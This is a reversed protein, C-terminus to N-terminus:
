LPRCRGAVPWCGAVIIGLSAAYFSAANDDDHCIYGKNGVDALDFVYIEADVSEASILLEEPQAGTTYRYFFDGAPPESCFDDLPDATFTLNDV